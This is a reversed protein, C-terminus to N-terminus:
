ALLTLLIEELRAYDRGGNRLEINLEALQLIARRLSAESFRRCQAALKKAVYPNLKLEAAIGRQDYGQRRLEMFQLLQRLKFLILASMPLINTGKKREGALVQLSEQLRGEAIFNLVAFGSAEPLEAFINAVDERTWTHREGAYIALKAIEQQLLQLPAKEVPELYEMILGIADGQWRAGYKEAQAHLWPTLEYPRLSQCECTLGVKKLTKFLKTRKDLKAANFVLTCYEPVDAALAALRDLQAKRNESEQKSGLLREDQVIVLASGSFFPYTNLTNELEDLNTDREFVTIQRDEPATDGFLYDPLAQLIQRRYYDEEGFATLVRGNEQWPLSKGNQLKYLLEEAKIDM